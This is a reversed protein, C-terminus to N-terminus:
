EHNVDPVIHWQLLLLSSFVRLVVPIRLHIVFTSWEDIHTKCTSFLLDMDVVASIVVFLSITVIINIM